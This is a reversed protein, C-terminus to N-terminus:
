LLEEPVILKDGDGFFEVDTPWKEWFHESDELGISSYRGGSLIHLDKMFDTNVVLGGKNEKPM